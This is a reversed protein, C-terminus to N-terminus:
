QTIDPQIVAWFRGCQAMLGQNDSASLCCRVGNFEWKVKASDMLHISSGLAESEGSSSATQQRITDAATRPDRVSGRVLFKSGRVQVREVTSYVGLFVLM